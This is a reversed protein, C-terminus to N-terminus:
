CSPRWFLSPFRVGFLALSVILYDLWSNHRLAAIIGLPIGIWRWYSRPWSGWNCRSPCLIPSCATSRCKPRLRVALTAACHRAWTTSTSSWFPRDLGLNRRMRQLDEERLSYLDEGYILEISRRSRLLGVHVHDSLRGIRRSYRSHSAFCPLSGGTVLERILFRSLHASHGCHPNSVEALTSRFSGQGLFRSSSKM